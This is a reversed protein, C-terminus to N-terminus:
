ELADFNENNKSITFCVIICFLEMVQKLWTHLLTMGCLIAGGASYKVREYQCGVRM